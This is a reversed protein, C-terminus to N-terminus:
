SLPEPPRVEARVPEPLEFDPYPCAQLAATLEAGTRTEALARYAAASLVVARDHGHVTIHQPGESDARRILESLQAKARRLDWTAFREAAARFNASRKNSRKPMPRRTTTAKTRKLKSTTM